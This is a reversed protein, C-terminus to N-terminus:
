LCGFARVGCFLTKDIMFRHKRGSSVYSEMVFFPLFPYFVPFVNFLRMNQVFLENINM